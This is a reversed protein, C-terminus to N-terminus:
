SSGLRGPPTGTESATSSARLVGLAEELERADMLLLALNFFRSAEIAPHDLDIPERGEPLHREGAEVSQLLASGCGANSEPEL